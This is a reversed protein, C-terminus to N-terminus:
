ECDYGAEFYVETPVATKGVRDVAVIVESYPCNGTTRHSILVTRKGVFKALRKKAPSTGPEIKGPRLLEWAYRTYFGLLPHGKSRLEAALDRLQAPDTLTSSLSWGDVLEPGLHLSLKTPLSLTADARGLDGIWRRVALVAEEFGPKGATAVPSGEGLSLVLLSPMITGSQEDAFFVDQGVVAVASKESPGVDLLECTRGDLSVRWLDKGCVVYRDESAAIIQSAPCDLLRESAVGEAKGLRFTGQGDAYILGAGDVALVHPNLTSSRAVVSAEGGTRPVRLVRDEFVWYVYRADVAVGQGLGASDARKPKEVGATVLATTAGGAKGVRYIQSTSGDTFFVDDGEVALGLGNPASALVQPPGKRGPKPTKWVKEDAIFYAHDADLALEADREGPIKTLPRRKGKATWAVLGAATQVFAYQGDAVMAYVPQAESLVRPVFLPGGGLTPEVSVLALFFLAIM